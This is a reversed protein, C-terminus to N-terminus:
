SLLKSSLFTLGVCCVSPGRYIPIRYSLVILLLLSSYYMGTKMRPVLPWRRLWEAMQPVFGRTSEVRHLCFAIVVSCTIIYFRMYHIVFDCASFMCCTFYSLEAAFTAHVITEHESSSIHTGWAHGNCAHVFLSVGQM